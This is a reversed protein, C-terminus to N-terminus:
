PRKRMQVRPAHDPGDANSPPDSPYGKALDLLLGRVDPSVRRAAVMHSLFWRGRESNLDDYRVGGGTETSHIIRSKGAYIAVHNIGGDDEFLVLDGPAIVHWDNRVREGVRAQDRSARPLIVGLRAFVFRVFGAADFGTSPSTGGRRYPTGVYGEATSVVRSLGGLSSLEGLTGDSEIVPIARGTEGGSGIHFTLGVRLEHTPTPADDANPMVFKSMRSRWESFVGIAGGLPLGIGGGYSWGRQMVRLGGSDVAATGAGVFAYPTFTVRNMYSLSELYAVADADAGWPRMTSASPNGTTSRDQLSLHAGGRIAIPGASIGLALGTMPGVTGHSLTLFPSLSVDPQQAGLVASTVALAAGCFPVCSFRLM